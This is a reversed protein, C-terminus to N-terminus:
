PCKRALVCLVYTGDAWQPQAAFRAAYARLRRGLKVPLTPAEGQRPLQPPLYTWFREVWLGHRSLLRALAAASFYNLHELDVRFGVWAPGIVSAEGGNPLALLLRGDPALAASVQAAFKGPDALHELLQFACVIDLRADTPLERTAPIGEAALVKIAQEDWEVGSVVAGARRTELLFDGVSCGVECLARGRLGGTAELVGVYPDLYPSAPQLGLWRALGGPRRAPAIGKYAAYDAYFERLSADDPHDALYTMGCAPCRSVILGDPRRCVPAPQDTDCVPCPRHAMANTRWNPLRGVGVTPPLPPLQPLSPVAM